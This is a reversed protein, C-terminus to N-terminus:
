SMIRTAFRPIDHPLKASEEAKAQDKEIDSILSELQAIAADVPDLPENDNGNASNDSM